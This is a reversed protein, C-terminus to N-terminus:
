LHFNIVSWKHTYQLSQSADAPETTPGANLIQPPRGVFYEQVQASIKLFIEDVWKSDVKKTDVRSLCVFDFIIRVLSANTKQTVYFYSM